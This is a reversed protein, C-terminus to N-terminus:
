PLEKYQMRVQMGTHTINHQLRDNTCTHNHSCKTAVQVTTNLKHHLHLCQGLAQVAQAISQLNSTCSDYRCEHLYSHLQTGLARLAHMSSKTTRYKHGM